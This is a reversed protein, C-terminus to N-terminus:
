MVEYSGPPEETIDLSVEFYGNHLEVSAGTVAVSAIRGWPACYFAHGQEVLAEVREPTTSYAKDGEVVAGSVASSVSVFNTGKSNSLYSVIPKDQGNLILETSQTKFDRSEQLPEGKNLWIIVSMLEGDSTYWYFRHAKVDMTYYYRLISWTKKDTDKYVEIAVYRDDNTFLALSENTKSGEFMDVFSLWTKADGVIRHQWEITSSEYNPWQVAALMDDGLSTTPTGPDVWTYAVGDTDYQANGALQTPQVTKTQKETFNPLDSTGITYAITYKAKSGTELYSGVDNINSWPIVFDLTGDYSTYSAKESNGWNGVIGHGVAKQAVTLNRIYTAGNTFDSTAKFRLGSPCWTISEIDFTPKVCYVRECTVYSSVIKFGDADTTKTRVDFILKVQTYGDDPMESPGSSSFIVKGSRTTTPTLWGKTSTRTWAANAGNRQYVNWRLEYSGGQAIWSDAIQWHPKVTKSGNNDAGVWRNYPLSNGFNGWNAGYPTPLVNAGPCAPVLVFQQYASSANYKQLTLASCMSKVGAACDLAGGNLSGDISCSTFTVVDCTGGDVTKTSRKAINWGFCEYNPVSTNNWYMFFEAAQGLPAGLTIKPQLYGECKNGAAAGGYYFTRINYWGQTSNYTIKVMQSEEGAAVDVLIADTTNLGIGNWNRFSTARRLGGAFSAPRVYYYGEDITKAM